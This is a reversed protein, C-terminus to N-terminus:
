ECFNQISIAFNLNQGDKVYFTTIGLLNGNEDVLAGGSSGPSIPATTQILRETRNKRLGSIIGDAFTMDLGKPTGLSYVKEGIEIKQFPKAASIYEALSKGKIKLICMDHEPQASVVDAIFTIDEKQLEVIEANQVVHCNTLLLSTSIAVSSGQAFPQGLRKDVESKYVRVKWISPLISKYIQPSPKATQIPNMECIKETLKSWEMNTKASPKQTENRKEEYKIYDDLNKEFASQWKTAINQVERLSKADLSSPESHGGKCTQDKYRKTLEVYTIYEDAFYSKQKEKSSLYNAILGWFYEQMAATKSGRLFNDSWFSNALQSAALCNGQNASVELLKIGNNKQKSDEVLILGAEYQAISNGQLAADMFHKLAISENKVVRVGDLFIIGLYLQSQIHGAEAAAKLWTQFNEKYNEEINDDYTELFLFDYYFRGNENGEEKLEKFWKLINQNDIQHYYYKALAITAEKNGNEAQAVCNALMNITDVKEKILLNYMRDERLKDFRSENIKYRVESSYFYRSSAKSSDDFTKEFFDLGILKNYESIDHDFAKGIPGYISLTSFMNGEDKYEPDDKEGFVLDKYHKIGEIRLNVLHNGWQLITPYCATKRQEIYTSVFSHISRIDKQHRYNIYIYGCFAAIYILGSLWLFISFKKAAKNSTLFNRILFPFRKILPLNENKQPFFYKIILGFVFFAMISLCVFLAIKEQTPIWIAQLSLKEFPWSNLIYFPLFLGTPLLIFKLCSLFKSIM